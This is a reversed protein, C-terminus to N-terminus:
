SNQPIAQDAIGYLKPTPVREDIEFFAKVNQLDFVAELSPGIGTLTLRNGSRKSGLQAEILTAIGSSDIYDVGSLDVVIQNTDGKILSSLEERVEPSTSFDLDGELCITSIKGWREEIRIKM